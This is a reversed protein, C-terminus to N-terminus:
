SSGTGVPAYQSQCGSALEGVTWSYEIITGDGHEHLFICGTAMSFMGSAGYCDFLLSKDEKPQVRWRGQKYPAPSDFPIPRLQGYFFNSIMEVSESNEVFFTEHTKITISEKSPYAIPLCMEGQSKQRLVFAERGVISGVLIILVGILVTKLHKNM